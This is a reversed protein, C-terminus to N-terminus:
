YQAKKFDPVPTGLVPPIVTKWLCLPVLPCGLLEGQGLKMPPPFVESGPGQANWLVWPHCSDEWPGMWASQLSNALEKQDRQVLAGHLAPGPRHVDDM